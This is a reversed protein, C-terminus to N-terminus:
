RHEFAGSDPPEAMVLRGFASEDGNRVSAVSCLFLSSRAPIAYTTSLLM